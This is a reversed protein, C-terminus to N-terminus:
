DLDMWDNMLWYVAEMRTLLWELLDAEEESKVDIELSKM